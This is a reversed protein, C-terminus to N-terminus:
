FFHSLVIFFCLKCCSTPPMAHATLNALSNTLNNTLTLSDTLNNTLTNTLNNTLSNILNNTLSNTLSNGSARPRWHALHGPPWPALPGSPGPPWLGSRRTALAGPLRPASSPAPPKVPPASSCLSCSFFDRKLMHNPLLNNSFIIHPVETSYNKIIKFGLQGWINLIDLIDTGACINQRNAISIDTKDTGACINQLKEILTHLIDTGACINHSKILM